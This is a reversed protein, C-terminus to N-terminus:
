RTVNKLVELVTWRKRKSLPRSSSIRVTDGMKAGILNEAMFKKSRKMLKEYLPHPRRESIKVLITKEMKDSVVIGIKEQRKGM